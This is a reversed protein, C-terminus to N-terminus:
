GAGKEEGSEGETKTKTYKNHYSHPSDAGPPSHGSTPFGANKKLGNKPNTDM